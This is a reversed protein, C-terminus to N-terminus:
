VPVSFSRVPPAAYVDILRRHRCPTSPSSYGAAALSASSLTSALAYVSAVSVPAPTMCKGTVDIRPLCSGTDFSHSDFDSIGIYFADHVFQAVQPVFPLLPSTFVTQGSPLHIINLTCNSACVLAFRGEPHFAVSVVHPPPTVTSVSEPIPIPM